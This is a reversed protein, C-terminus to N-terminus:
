FCNKYLCLIGFRCLFVSCFGNCYIYRYILKNCMLNYFCFFCLYKIENIYMYVNLYIFLGDINIYYLLYFKKINKYM